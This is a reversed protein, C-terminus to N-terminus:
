SRPTGTLPPLGSRAEDPDIGVVKAAERLRHLHDEDAGEALGPATLEFALEASGFRGEEIFREIQRVGRETALRNAEADPRGPDNM